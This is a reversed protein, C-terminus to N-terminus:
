AKGQLIADIMAEFTAGAASSGDDHPGPYTHPGGAMAVAASPERIAELAARAADACAENSVHVMQHLGDNLSAAMARAMRELMPVSAEAGEERESPISRSARFSGKDEM